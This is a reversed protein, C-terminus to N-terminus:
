EPLVKEAISADTSAKIHERIVSKQKDTFSGKWRKRKRYHEIDPLIKLRRICLDLLGEAEAIEDSVDIGRKALEKLGYLRRFESLATEKNM